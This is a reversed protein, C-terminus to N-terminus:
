KKSLLTNIFFLTINIELFFLYLYNGKSIEISKMLFNKSLRERRDKRFRKEM